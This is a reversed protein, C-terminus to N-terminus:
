PGILRPIRQIPADKSKDEIEDGDHDFPCGNNGSLDYLGQEAKSDPAKDKYKSSPEGMPQQEHYILADAWVTANDNSDLVLFYDHSSGNFVTQVPANPNPFIGYQYEFCSVIYQTGDGVPVVQDVHIEILSALNDLQPDLYSTANWAVTGDCDDSVLSSGITPNGTHPDPKDPFLIDLLMAIQDKILPALNLDTIGLIDGAGFEVEFTGCQYLTWKVTDEDVDCLSFTKHCVLPIQSLGPSAWVNFASTGLFQDPEAAFPCLDNAFSGYFGNEEVHLLHINPDNITVRPKPLGEYYVGLSVTLGFIRFLCIEDRDTANYWGLGGVDGESHPKWEISGWSLFTRSLHGDSEEKTETDASALPALTLMVLLATMTTAIAKM